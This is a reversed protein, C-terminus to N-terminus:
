DLYGLARLQELLEADAESTPAAGERAAGWSAISRVPHAARFEPTYLETWARGEFDEAVPLDLGYLLTPAVDHIRLGELSARPDIDPGAALFIGHTDAVHSGSLSEVSRLAGELPVGDVLLGSSPAATLVEVVFDAGDRIEAPRADRVRFVPNGNDYRVRGLDAELSARVRAREAPLVSGGEERGALAFRALKVPRYFPSAYPYVRTRTFDVGTQTRTYYGLHALVAALDLAVKFREPVSIFGHDSLVVINAERPAAALVQGIADDALRYAKPVRDRHAALQDAPIPPFGEPQYYKWHTHSTTDVTRLYLLLLDFEGGALYRACRALIRDQRAFPGPAVLASPSEEDEAIFRAVHPLYQPPYVRNELDSLLRDSVMVGRVEEAPWTAWWGLSAVRRNSASLMNWLAPVRRVASSVPVDGAATPMVFDSIGHREPTMGTAVTTWIVASLGYDTRLTGFVGRQALDRLHPLDGERWLAEIVGRDAGDVGIM